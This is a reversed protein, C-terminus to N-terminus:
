DEGKKEMKELLDKELNPNDAMMKQAQEQLAGLDMNQMLDAPNPMAMGPPLNAAMNALPSDGGSMASVAKMLAASKSPDSLLAAVHKMADQMASPDGAMMRRQLDMVDPGLGGLLDGAIDAFDGGDETLDDASVKPAWEGMEGVEEIAADYSKAKPAAAKPFTFVGRDDDHKDLADGVLARILLGLEETEADRVSVSTFILTADDLAKITIREGNAGELATGSSGAAKLTSALVSAEIRVLAVAEMSM